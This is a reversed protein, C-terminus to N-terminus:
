RGPAPHVEVLGHSKLEEILRLLDSECQQPEVDYEDLLRDRVERVPRQEAMLEWARAGVEELGHYVGSKLDLIVVEEAVNSFVLDKAPCVVSDLSISTM